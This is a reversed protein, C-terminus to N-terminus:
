LVEEGWGHLVLASGTGSYAKIVTGAQYLGGVIETLDVATNAAVSYGKLEANGDGIAGGSPIANLSLTAASGTLNAVALRRVKLMVGARVTYLTQAAGSTTGTILLHDIPVDRAPIVGGTPQTAVRIETM